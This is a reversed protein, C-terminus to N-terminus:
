LQPQRSVCTPRRLSWLVTSYTTSPSLFFYASQFFCCSFHHQLNDVIYIFTTM